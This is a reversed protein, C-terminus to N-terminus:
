NKGHWNNILKLRDQLHWNNVFIPQYKTTLCNFAYLYKDTKIMNAIGIDVININITSMEIM